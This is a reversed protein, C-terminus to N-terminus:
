AAGTPSPSRHAKGGFLWDMPIKWEEHTQAVRNNSTETDGSQKKALTTISKASWRSFTRQL